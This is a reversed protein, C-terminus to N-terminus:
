TCSNYRKKIVEWDTTTMEGRKYAEYRAESEEIWKKEIEPDPRDHSFPERQRIKRFVEDGPVTATKGEEYETLRRKIESIWLREIRDTKNEQYTKMLREDLPIPIIEGASTKINEYCSPERIFQKEANAMWGALADAANSYAQEFTDGFTVCGPLDPFEM